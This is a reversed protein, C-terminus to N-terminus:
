PFYKQLYAVAQDKSLGMAALQETTPAVGAQMLANGSNSLLELLKLQSNYTPTGNAFAGTANAVDINAGLLSLKYNEEWQAIQSNFEDISLNTQKAWQHLDMLQSLYNQTIALLQNAKEFEGQARLDSIQRATDTALKNQEKQVTLRNTAANNQITNYQAQGIGGRDGRAEAYLAQNDMARREDIDIQDKQTQFQDQADQMSRQLQTTGTQVATDAQLKAQEKQADTIQQLITNEPEIDVHEIRDIKAPGADLGATKLLEANAAAAKDADFINKTADPNSVIKSAWDTPAAGGGGSDEGGGYDHGNWGPGHEPEWYGGSSSDSSSSAAPESSVTNANPGGVDATAKYAM